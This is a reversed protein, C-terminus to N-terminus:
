QPTDRQDREFTALSKLLKHRADEDLHALNNATAVAVQKAAVGLHTEQLPMDPKLLKQLDSEEEETWPDPTPPELTTMYLDFYQQKRTLNDIKCHKWKCLQKIAKVSHTKYSKHTLPGQTSLMARADLDVKQILIRKEKEDQIKKTNELRKAHERAQFFEDSNLHQGGTAFFM